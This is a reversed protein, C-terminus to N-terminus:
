LFSHIFVQKPSKFGVQISSACGFALMTIVVAGLALSTYPSFQLDVIVVEYFFVGLILGLFFGIVARSKKHRGPPDYCVAYFTPCANFYGKSLKELIREAIEGGRSMKELGPM